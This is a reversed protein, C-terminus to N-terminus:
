NRWEYGVRTLPRPNGQPPLFTPRDPDFFISSQSLETFYKGQYPILIQKDSNTWPQKQLYGYPCPTVGRGTIGGTTLQSYIMTNLDGCVSVEPFQGNTPLNGPNNCWKNGCSSPDPSFVSFNNM